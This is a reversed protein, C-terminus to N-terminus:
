GFVTKLPAGVWDKVAIDQTRCLRWMDGQQVPHSLLVGGGAGM